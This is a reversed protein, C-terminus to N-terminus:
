RTGAHHIYTHVVRSTRLSLRTCVNEWKPRAAMWELFFNFYFIPHTALLFFAIKTGHSRLIALKVILHVVKIAYRGGAEEYKKGTNAIAFGSSPSTKIRCSPIRNISESLLCLNASTM